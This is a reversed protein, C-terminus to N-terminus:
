RSLGVVNRCDAGRSFDDGSVLGLIKAIEIAWSFSDRRRRRGQNTLFSLRSSVPNRGSDPALLNTQKLPVVSVTFRAGYAILGALSEPSEEISFRVVINANNNLPM